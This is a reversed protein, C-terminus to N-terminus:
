AIISFTNRNEQWTEFGGSTILCTQLGIGLHQVCTVDCQKIILDCIVSGVATSSLIHWQQHFTIKLFFNFLYWGVYYYVHGGRARLYVKSINGM